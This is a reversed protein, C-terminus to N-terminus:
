ETTADDVVEGINDENRDIQVTTEYPTVFENEPESYTAFQEFNRAMLRDLLKENASVLRRNETVLRDNDKSLLELVREHGYSFELHKNVQEMLNIVKTRFRM